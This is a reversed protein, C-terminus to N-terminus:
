KGRIYILCVKRVSFVITRESLVISLTVLREMNMNEMSYNIMNKLFHEYITSMSLFNKESKKAMMKNVFKFFRYLNEIRAAKEYCFFVAM